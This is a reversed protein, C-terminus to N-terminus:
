GELGELEGRLLHLAHLVARESLTGNRYGTVLARLDDLTAAESESLGLHHELAEFCSILRTLRALLPSM